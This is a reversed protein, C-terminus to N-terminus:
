NLVPTLLWFSQCPFNWPSLFTIEETVFLSLDVTTELPSQDLRKETLITVMSGYFGNIFIADKQSWLPKTQAPLSPFEVIRGPQKSMHYDRHFSVTSPRVKRREKKKRREGFHALIIEKGIRQKTSLETTTTTMTRSAAQQQQHHCFKQKFFAHGSTHLARKDWYVHCLCTSKPM